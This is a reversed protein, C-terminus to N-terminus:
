KTSSSIFSIVAEAAKEQQEDSSILAKGDNKQHGYNGFQSHNGGKISVETYKGPLNKRNEKLKSMNIIQDESATVLLADMGSPIQSSPYSSLMIVGKIKDSNSSAYKAAMVGGLSHGGIYWTSYQHEAFAKDAANTDLVALRCPMKMLCVDIGSSAIKHLLPAYANEDVKGGPYFILAKDDSPGDFLVGYPRERVTVMDDSSMAEAATGDAHYYDSVYVFFSVALLILVALITGAAIILKKSGKANNRGMSNHATM